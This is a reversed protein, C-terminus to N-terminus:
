EIKEEGIQNLTRSIIQLLRDGSIGVSPDLRGQIIKRYSLERYAFHASHFISYMFGGRLGFSRMILLSLDEMKLSDGARAKLPLWEKSMAFDFAATEEPLGPGLIDAAAL